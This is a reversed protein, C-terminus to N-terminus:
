EVECAFVPRAEILHFEFGFLSLMAQNISNEVSGWDLDQTGSKARM